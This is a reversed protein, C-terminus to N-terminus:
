KGNEGGLVGYLLMNLQRWCKEGHARIAAETPTTDELSDAFRM